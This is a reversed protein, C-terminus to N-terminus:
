LSACRSWSKRANELVVDIEANNAVSKLTIHPVREYVFGLRINRHVPQSGPAVQAVEAEKM